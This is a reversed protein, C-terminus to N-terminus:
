YMDFVELGHRCPVRRTDSAVVITKAGSDSLATLIQTIFRTRCDQTLNTRMWSGRVLVV